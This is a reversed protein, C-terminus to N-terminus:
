PARQASIVAGETRGARGAGNQPGRRRGAARGAAADLGAAGRGAQGRAGRCYRSVVAGRASGAAGRGGRAAAGGRPAAALCDDIAAFNGLRLWGDLDDPRAQLRAALQAMMDRVMKDREAPPMNEAAAMQQETPGPQAAVAPEEATGKPLAPAAIGGSRAADAVRREIETRMPADGPIDAALALYFRAVDNRPDADRAKVFAARAGPAVVGDAALVQMEGYGAYVDAGTRGLRIAQQYGGSAKNWDGLMSETRAFLLWNDTSSPDNRLKGELREAAM